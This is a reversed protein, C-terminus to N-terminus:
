APKFFFHNRYAVAGKFFFKFDVIPIGKLRTGGETAVRCTGRILLQISLYKIIIKKRLIILHRPLHLQLKITHNPITLISMGTSLGQFQRCKSMYVYFFSIFYSNTRIKKKWFWRSFFFTWGGKLPPALNVCPPPRIGGGGSDTNAGNGKRCQVKSTSLILQSQINKIKVVSNNNGVSRCFTSM